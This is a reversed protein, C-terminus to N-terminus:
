GNAEHGTFDGREEDATHGHGNQVKHRVVFLRRCLRPNRTRLFDAMGHFGVNARDIANKADDDAEGHKDGAVVLM